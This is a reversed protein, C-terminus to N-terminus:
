GCESHISRTLCSIVARRVNRAHACVVDHRAINVRYRYNSQSSLKQKKTRVSSINRDLLKYRLHLDYVQGVIINQQLLKKVTVTVPPPLGSLVITHAHAFSHVCTSVRASKRTVIYWQLRGHM